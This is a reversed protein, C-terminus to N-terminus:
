GREAGAIDDDESAMGDEAKGIGILDVVEFAIRGSADV